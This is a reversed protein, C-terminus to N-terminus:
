ETEDGTSSFDPVTKVVDPDTMSNGSATYHSTDNVYVYESKGGGTMDELSTSSYNNGVYLMNTNGTVEGQPGTEIWQMGGIIGAVFQGTATLSPAKNTNQNCVGATYWMGVIGGVGTTGSISATNTCGTVSIINMQPYNTTSGNYRVWGVIGGSGYDNGGIVKGTNTCNTISGACNQQGVIGGTATTAGTVTGSNSCGTVNAASLGVVGGVAQSNGTVNGGNTCNEITMTKGVETYYAAGVIGGANDSSSNITATSSCGSVTGNALMRGVVGGVGAKGSVTGSVTVNEVTAGNSVIAVIGAQDANTGNIEVDAFNLNRVAAESGNLSAVFGALDGDNSIKLNSITHGQGDIIGNFGSGSVNTGSRSVDGIMPFDQGAMDFDAGLTITYGEFNNATQTEGNIEGGNVMAALGALQSPVNVGVTQTAEDVDPATVTKGDWVYDVTMSGGWENNQTISFTANASLLSGFINTQYNARLPANYVPLVTSYTEAEGNTVTLTIDTTTSTESPALVYCSAVYNYGTVPYSGELASVQIDNVEIDTAVETGYTKEFANYTTLAESIAISSVANGLNEGLYEEVNSVSSSPITTGFNVQAVIRELTASAQSNTKQVNEITCSGSFCDYADASVLEGTMASYNVTLDGSSTNFTYVANSTTEETGDAVDGSEADEMSPTTSSFVGESTAVFIFQYDKGSVLNLNVTATSSNDLFSATGQAYYSSEGPTASGTVDYVFFNLQGAANGDGIARTSLNSPLNVTIQAAVTEGDTATPNDINEQSCAAFLMGAIGPLLYYYKKM